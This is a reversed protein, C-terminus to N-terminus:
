ADGRLPLPNTRNDEEMAFMLERLAALTRPSEGGNMCFEVQASQTSENGIDIDGIPLGDQCIFVVLDGSRQELVMLSRTRHMDGRREVSKNGM